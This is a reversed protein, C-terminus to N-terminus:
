AGATVTSSGTAGAATFSQSTPSITPAACPLSFAFTNTRPSANSGGPGIAELVAEYTVGLDLPSTLLAVFDLRIMGDSQPAPKGLDVTQVPAVAGQVFVQLSYRDLVPAGNVDVAAHDVSPTFEIRRGDLVNQANAYSATLLGWVLAAAAVRRRPFVFALM